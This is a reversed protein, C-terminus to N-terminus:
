VVSKSRTTWWAKGVKERDQMSRPIVFNYGLERRKEAPMDIVAQYEALRARYDYHHRECLQQMVEVFLPGVDASYTKLLPYSPTRGLLVLGKSIQNVFAWVFERFAASQGEGPMQNAIRTAVETVRLFSGVPNYQASHAPFGLHFLYFQDARGANVAESYMRLLLEM